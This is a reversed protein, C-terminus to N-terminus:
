AALPFPYQEALQDLDAETDIPVPVTMLLNKDQVKGEGNVPIGQHFLVPTPGRLGRQWAFIKMTTGRLSKFSIYYWVCYNFALNTKALGMREYCKRGVILANTRSQFAVAM